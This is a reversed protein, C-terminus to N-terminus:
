KPSPSVPPSDIIVGGGGGSGSNPGGLKGAKMDEALQKMSAIKERKEPADWEKNSFDVTKYAKTLHTPDHHWWINHESGDLIRLFGRVDRVLYPGDVGKDHFIKGFVKLDVRAPGVDLQRSEEVWGIATAGDGSMVNAEFSHLGKEKVDVNLSIVLEGGAGISDSVSLVNLVERPAYTFERIILRKAGDFEIVAALHVQQSQHMAAINSPVLRNSYRRDGAKDDGDAGNDNYHLPVVPGQTKGSDFVVYAESIKLPVRKNIDTGEWAEIWSTLAEGYKVHARDAAFRYFTEKGAKDNLPLTSVVPENWKLKYVTGDDHPRSSVPYVAATQYDDIAKQIRALAQAKAIQESSVPAAAPATAAGSAYPAVTGADAIAVPDPEEPTRSSTNGRFALWFVVIAALVAAITLVRKIPERPQTTAV